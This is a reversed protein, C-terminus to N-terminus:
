IELETLKAEAVLLTDRGRKAFVTLLALPDTDVVEDPLDADIAAALRRAM